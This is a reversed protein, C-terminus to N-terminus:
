SSGLRAGHSLIGPVSRTTHAPVLATTYALVADSRGQGRGMRANEMSTARVENAKFCCRHTQLALGLLEAKQLNIGSYLQVLSRM